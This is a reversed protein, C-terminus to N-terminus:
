IEGFFMEKNYYFEFRYGRFSGASWKPIKRECILGAFALERCITYNDDLENTPYFWKDEPNFFLNELYHAVDFNEPLAKVASQYLTTEKM